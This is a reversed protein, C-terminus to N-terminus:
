ARWRRFSMALSMRDERLYAGQGFSGNKLAIEWLINSCEQIKEVILIDETMLDLSLGNKASTGSIAVLQCRGL